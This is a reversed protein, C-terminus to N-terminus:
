LLPKPFSPQQLPGDLMKKHRAWGADDFRSKIVRAPVGVAVSNEPIDRTVVAGAGIICGDGVSVGGVIVSRAGVWVDSGIRTVKAEPRGSFYIPVGPVDFLHDHATINVNPGIMTYRGIQVGSEVACDPGVYSYADAQLDSTIDASFSLYATPHCRWAGHYARYFFCRARRIGLYLGPMAHLRRRGLAKLTGIM